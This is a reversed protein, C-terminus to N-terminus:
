LSAVFSMLCPNLLIKVWRSLSSHPIVSSDNFSMPTYQDFVWRELLKRPKHTGAFHGTMRAARSYYIPTRNVGRFHCSAKHSDALSHMFVPYSGLLSECKKRHVLM